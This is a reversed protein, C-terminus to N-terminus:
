VCRSTYLLCGYPFNLYSQTAAIVSGGVATNNVNYGFTTGGAINTIVGTTTIM